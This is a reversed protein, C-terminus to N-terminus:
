RKTAGGKDREKRCPPILPMGRGSKRDHDRFDRRELAVTRGEAVAENRAGSSGKTTAWSSDLVGMDELCLSFM